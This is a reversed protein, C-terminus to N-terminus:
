RHASLSNKDSARSIKATLISELTDIGQSPATAELRIEGESKITEHTSVSLSVELRDVTVSGLNDELSPPVLGLVVYEVRFGEMPHLDNHLSKDSVDVELERLIVETRGSLKSRTM